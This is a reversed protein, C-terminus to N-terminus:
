ALFSNDRGLDFVRDVGGGGEATNGDGLFVITDDELSGVFTNGDGGLIVLNPIINTDDELYDGGNAIMVTRRVQSADFTYTTFSGGLGGDPAYDVAIHDPDAFYLTAATHGAPAAEILLTDGVLRVPAVSLLSRGELPTVTPALRRPHRISSTHTEIGGCFPRHVSLRVSM